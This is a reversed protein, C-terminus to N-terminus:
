LLCLSDEITKGDALHDIFTHWKRKYMNSFYQSNNWGRTKGVAQWCRPDLLIRHIDIGGYTDGDHEVYRQPWTSNKRYEGEIADEIFQKTNTM